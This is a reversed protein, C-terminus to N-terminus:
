CPAGEPWPQAVQALLQRDVKAYIGTTEISRHRLVGAISELDVGQRLMQCAATHRFVHAGSSPGQIGARKLATRAVQSVAGGSRFPAVPAVVRVFVRESQVRPRVRLYDLLADGVDQPLPLRSERRGKGCVRLTATDFCLDSSHLGAVDGARLGLRILLLLIARDRVGAPTTPCAKLVQQVQESSLGRPLSQQSWNAPSLLAHELGPRCQGETALHRLFMRVAALVMRISNRGYHGYRQTVFNRLGRATYTGPDDGLHDVLDGVYQRYSRVTTDVVGRDDRLWRCFGGVLAAPAAPRGAVTRIVGRERMRHVFVRVCSIVHRDRNRSTGPCECASRHQEFATVADEDARELEAGGALSLWVLFHAVSHLHLRAVMGNYGYHLLEKEYDAVLELDRASRISALGFVPSSYAHM